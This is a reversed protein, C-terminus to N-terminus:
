PTDDPKEKRDSDEGNNYGKLKARMQVEIQNDQIAEWDLGLSACEEILSTVGTELRKEAAIADNRPDWSPKIYRQWVPKLERIVPMGKKLACFFMAWEWIPTLIASTFINFEIEREIYDEIGSVRTASFNAAGYNNSVMEFSRGIGLGIDRDHSILFSEYNSGPRDANLISLDENSELYHITNKAGKISSRSTDGASSDDAGFPTDAELADKAKDPENLKCYYLIDAEHKKRQLESDKYDGVDNLLVLVPALWPMERSASERTPNFLYLMEPLGLENKCPVFEYKKSGSRSYIDRPNSLSVWFGEIEGNDRFRVGARTNSDSEGPPTAICEPEIIRITFPTKRNKTRIIRVFLGGDTKYHRYMLRIYQLWTRMRRWDMDLNHPCAIDERWYAEAIDTIERSREEGIKIELERPFRCQVIIKPGIVNTVEKHILGRAKADNDAMLRARSRIRDLQHLNETDASMSFLDWNPRRRAEEYATNHRSILTRLAQNKLRQNEERLKTLEDPKKNKSFWGM